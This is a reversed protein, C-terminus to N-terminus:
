GGVVARGGGRRGPPGAEESVPLRPNSAGEGGEGATCVCLLHSNNNTKRQLNRLLLGGGGWRNYRHAELINDRIM